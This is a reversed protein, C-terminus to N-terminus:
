GTLLQRWEDGLEVFRKPADWVPSGVAAAASYAWHAIAISANSEPAVQSASYRLDQAYRMNRAIWASLHRTSAIHDRKDNNAERSALVLNLPDNSPYRAWAIFHDVEAGKTGDLRKQTYFCRRDQVEYLKPALQALAVRDQGFMFAELNRDRGLAPNNERVWRAWRAQVLAIIVGRLSRLCAGVGPKLTITRLARLAGADAPFDYLFHDHSYSKDNVTEFQQLRSLPMRVILERAATVLKDRAATNQRLRAFASKGSAVAKGLLTLITAPKLANSNQSLQAGLHQYPRAQPWYLALFERATDQLDITLAASSNNGHEVAVNTLAILLAFKYTSTFRGSELLRQTKHLFKLKDDANPTQAPM